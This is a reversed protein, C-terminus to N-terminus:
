NGVSALTSNAHHRDTRASRISRPWHLLYYAPHRCQETGVSIFGRCGASDARSRHPRGAHKRAVACADRHLDLANTPLLSEIAREGAGFRSPRTSPHQGRALVRAALRGAASHAAPAMSRVFSSGSLCGLGHRMLSKLAQKALAWKRTRSGSYKSILGAIAARAKHGSIGLDM